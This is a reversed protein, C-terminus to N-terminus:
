GARRPVRPPTFAADVIWGNGSAHLRAAARRGQESLAGSRYLVLELLFALVELLRVGPDRVNFDSWDPQARRVIQAIENALTRVVLEETSTAVGPIAKPQGDYEEIYVGPHLYEPM